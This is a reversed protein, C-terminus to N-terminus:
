EAINCCRLRHCDYAYLMANLTFCPKVSVREVVVAAVVINTFSLLPLLLVLHFLVTRVAHELRILVYYYAVRRLLHCSTPQLVYVGHYYYFERWM